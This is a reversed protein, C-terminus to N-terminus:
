VVQVWGLKPLLYRDVGWWGAIRWALVLGLALILFQPNISVAGALLFNLNMFMGFFAAIGTFAGLILGVGVLLEGFAIVYSWVGVNPVIINQLFWAYWMSVDPHEGVTKSLAGSVFGKLAEGASDGTWAPNNVKGWGSLIWVYGVYLRVIFWFFAMNTKGFLVRAVSSSKYVIQTM